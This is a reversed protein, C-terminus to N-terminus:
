PNGFTGCTTAVKESHENEDSPLQAVAQPVDSSLSPYERYFAIMRKLNRESFGKVETLENRIDRSLKPIIKAGWGESQQRDHIMRGIDRYMLIMEANASLTAKIQARRIRDKIQILLEGYPVIDKKM